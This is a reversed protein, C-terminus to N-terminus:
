PKERLNELEIEKFEATLSCGVNSEIAILINDEKKILAIMVELSKILDSKVIYHGKIEIQTM